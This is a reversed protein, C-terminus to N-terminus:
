FVFFAAKQRRASPRLTLSLGTPATVDKAEVEKSSIPM